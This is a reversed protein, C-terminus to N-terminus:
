EGAKLRVPLVMYSFTDTGDAPTIVMPSLSSELNLQAEQTPVARLAELIYRCNLGIELGKGDGAIACSDNAAGIASVTRLLVFNDELRCRLPTNIKESVILSVREISSLLSPVHAVLRISSNTPVVKRWNLFEGELLRCILTVEGIKFMLHKTGPTFYVPEETDTLIKELEKLAAGPAVFKIERGFPTEPRYCRRAFRFGDVAVVTIASDEIEFLCGTQIPRVQSDSISFITGSILRKLEGGPVSLFKESDIEPLEPYEEASMVMIKFNSVGCKIEAKYNEDVSVEVPEDPMKRIIDSFLRTPFVCTGQELIEAEVNVSIGTEMNYGTLELAAGARAFIGEMAPIGNKVSVTRSAITLGNMLISKECIFKM